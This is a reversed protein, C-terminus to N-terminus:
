LRSGAEHEISCSESHSSDNPCDCCLDSLCNKACSSRSAQTLRRGRPACSNGGTGLRRKGDSHARDAAGSLRAMWRRRCSFASRYLSLLSNVAISSKEEIKSDLPILYGSVVRVSEVRVRAALVGAPEALPFDTGLRDGEITTLGEKEGEDASVVAPPAPPRVLLM